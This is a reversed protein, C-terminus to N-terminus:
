EKKREEKIKVIREQSLLIKNVRKKLVKIVEKDFEDDTFRWILLLDYPIDMRKCVDTEWDTRQSLEKLFVIKKTEMYANIVVGSDM